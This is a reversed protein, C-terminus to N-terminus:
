LSGFVRFSFVTCEFFSIFLYIFGVDGLDCSGFGRCDFIYTM